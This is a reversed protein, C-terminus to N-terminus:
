LYTEADQPLSRQIWFKSAIVAHNLDDTRTYSRVANKQPNFSPPARPLLQLLPRGYDPIVVIEANLRVHTNRSDAEVPTQNVSDGHKSREAGCKVHFADRLKTLGSPIGNIESPCRTV